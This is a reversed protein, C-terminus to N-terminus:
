CEVYNSHPMTVSCIAHGSGLSARNACVVIIRLTTFLTCAIRADVAVGSLTTLVLRPGFQGIGAWCPAQTHYVVSPAEPEYSDKLLKLIRQPSRMGSKGNCHVTTLTDPYAAEIDSVNFADPLPMTPSPILEPSQSAVLTGARDLYYRYLRPTM